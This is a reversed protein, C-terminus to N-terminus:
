RQILRRWKLGVQIWHVCFTDRPYDVGSRLGIAEPGAERSEDRQGPFAPPNGKSSWSRLGQVRVASEHVLRFERYQMHTYVTQKSVLM